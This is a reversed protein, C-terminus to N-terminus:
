VITSPKKIADKTPFSAKVATFRTNGTRIAAPVGPNRSPVPPEANTPAARPRFSGSVAFRIKESRAASATPTPSRSETM